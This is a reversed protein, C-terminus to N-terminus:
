GLTYNSARIYTAMDRSYKLFKGESGTIQNLIDQLITSECLEALLEKYWYRVRNCNNAHTRFADHVTLTEFPKHNLMETALAALRNIHAMSLYGITHKNVSELTLADVMNTFNFREEKDSMRLKDNQNIPTRNTKTQEDILLKLAREVRRKNYNTRRLVSRLLYADISHTVNAALSVGRKQPRNVKYSTSFKHHALEDIEIDVDIKECVKIHSVHGDPLEWTHAIVNPQWASILTDLLNFAGPAHLHCTEYFFDLLQEGFIEKPKAKSGYGATMVADKADKRNIDVGQIMSRVLLSNMSDTIITYADPRKNPDIQGTIEGGRKCGTIASMIQIGSCSADLAVLHGDAIGKEANRLAMVAKIYLYKEDAEEMRQELVSYNNKVWQIRDEFLEKDGKFGVAKDDGFNNAIDICLYEIPQYSKFMNDETLTLTQPKHNNTLIM